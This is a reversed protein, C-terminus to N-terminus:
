ILLMIKIPCFGTLWTQFKFSFEIYHHIDPITAFQFFFFIGLLCFQGVSIIHSYLEYHSIQDSGFYVNVTSVKAPYYEDGFGDMKQTIIVFELEAEERTMGRIDSVCM